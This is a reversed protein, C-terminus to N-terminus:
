GRGLGVCELNLAEFGSTEFSRSELSSAMERGEHPFNFSSILGLFLSHADLHM